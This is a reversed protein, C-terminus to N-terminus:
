SAQPCNFYTPLVRQEEPEVWNLPHGPPLELICIQEAEEQTLLYAPLEEVGLEAAKWLRHNGDIVLLGGLFPILLLPETLDTGMAYSRDLGDYMAEIAAASVQHEYLSFTIPARGDSAIRLGETVDWVRLTGDEAVHQYSRHWLPPLEVLHGGTLLLYPM